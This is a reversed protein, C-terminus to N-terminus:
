QQIYVVSHKLLMVYKYTQRTLNYYEVNIISNYDGIMPQTISFFTLPTRM